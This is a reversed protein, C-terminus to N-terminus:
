QQKTHIIQLNVPVYLLSNKVLVILLSIPTHKDIARKVKWLKKQQKNVDLIFRHKGYLFIRQRFAFLKLVFIYTGNRM